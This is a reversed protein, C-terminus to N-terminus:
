NQTAAHGNSLSSTHDKTVSLNLSAVSQGSENAQCQLGLIRAKLTENENRLVSVEILLSEISKQCNAIGLSLIGLQDGRRESSVGDDESSSSNKDALSSNNNQGQSRDHSPKKNSRGDRTPKQRRGGSDVRESPRKQPM